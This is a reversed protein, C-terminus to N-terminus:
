AWDSISKAAAEPDAGEKQKGSGQNQHSPHKAREQSEEDPGLRRVPGEGSDLEAALKSAFESLRKRTRKAERNAEAKAVRYLDDLQSNPNVQNGHVHM